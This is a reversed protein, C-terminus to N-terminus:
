RDELPFSKDRYYKLDNANFTPNVWPDTFGQPITVEVARWHSEAEESIEDMCQYIEASRADVM